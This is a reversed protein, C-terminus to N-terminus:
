NGISVIRESECKAPLVATAIRMKCCQALNASDFLTLPSFGDGINAVDSELIATSLRTSPHAATPSRTTRNPRGSAMRGSNNRNQM